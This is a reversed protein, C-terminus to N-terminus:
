KVPEIVPEFVIRDLCFSRGYQGSNFETATVRVRLELKTTVVRDEITHLSNTFDIAWLRDYYNAVPFNGTINGGNLLLRVPENEKTQFLSAAPSSQTQITGNASLFKLNCSFKTARTQGYRSLEGPLFEAYINYKGSLVQPISFEIVPQEDNIASLKPQYVELFRSDTASYAPDNITRVVAASFEQRQVEIKRGEADDAEVYIIKQFTEKTNYNVDSETLFILGNSAQTKQTDKFLDAPQQFVNHATSVLSDKEAPEEIRGRFFLNEVIAMSTQLYQFNPDPNKSSAKFYPSIRAYAADWATDDPILATYTSDEVNIQGLGSRIPGFSFALWGTWDFLSNYRIYVTDRISGDPEVSLPDIIDIEFQKIFEAMKSTHPSTLIYEYINPFYPVQSKLTHLIGNKALIDRKSIEAGNFSSQGAFYYVKQNRMRIAKRADEATSHNFRAIHNEVILLAEEKTITELDIDELANNEPAWVTFTQTSQLLSDYAAIELLKSFVSLDAEGAILERLNQSPLSGSRGYHENQVDTCTYFLGM